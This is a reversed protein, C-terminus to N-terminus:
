FGCITKRMNEYVVFNLLAMPVTRALGPVFGRYFSAAGEQKVM